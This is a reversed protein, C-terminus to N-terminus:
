PETSRREMKTISPKEKETPLISFLERSGLFEREPCDQICPNSIFFRPYTVDPLHFIGRVATPPIHNIAGGPSEEAIKTAPARAPHLSDLADDDDDDEREEEVVRAVSGDLAADREAPSRYAGANPHALRSLSSGGAIREPSGGFSASRPRDLADDDDLEFEVDLRKSHLGDGGDAIYWYASAGLAVIALVGGCIISRRLARSTRLWSASGGGGRSRSGKSAGLSESARTRGAAARPVPPNPTSPGPQWSDGEDWGADDDDDGDSWGGSSKTTAPAPHSGHTSGASSSSGGASARSSSSRGASAAGGGSSNTSTRPAIAKAERWAEEGEEADSADWGDTAAM